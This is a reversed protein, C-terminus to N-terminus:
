GPDRSFQGQGTVRYGPFLLRSFAVITQELTVFRQAGGGLADPLKLLRDVRNPFRVLASMRRGDEVHALELALTFGLNPIFPFPHAPDVALPTLVPFVHLLFHDQLWEMEAESLDAVDVIVIGNQALEGRLELWRTQQAAVLAAVGRGIRELQETPTAGDDSLESVGEQAQGVLGAVRVMFFEDLNNASISLFRLRELLPHNPNASEELVRRNFELWSLERNIFRGPAALARGDSVPALARKRPIRRAVINESPADGRREGREADGGDGYQQCESPSCARPSLSPQNLGSALRIVGFYRM